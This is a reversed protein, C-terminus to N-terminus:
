ILGGHIHGGIKKKLHCLRPWLWYFNTTKIMWNEGALAM